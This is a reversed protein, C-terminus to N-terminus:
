GAAAAALETALGERRIRIDIYLLAIVAASFPTIITAAIAAGVGQAALMGMPPLFMAFMTFPMLIVSSVVSTIIGTLLVIGFVRWFFPKALVWGRRLATIPGCRELMLAPTAMATGTSVLIFWAIAALLSVLGVLIVFGVSGVQSVLVVLIVLATPVALGLLGILIVLGILRLVQGKAQDWVQAITPKYGLVAQSVAFTLVGTLITTAIASLVTGLVMSGVTGTLMGFFDDAAMSEIVAPDDELLDLISIYGSFFPASLLLEVITAVSIIVGAFIFMVMPNARISKFAGDFIQGLRLPRLPIVGPQAPIHSQPPEQGPAGPGHGGHPQGGLHPDPYHGPAPSPPEGYGGQDPSGWRDGPSTWDSGSQPEPPYTM